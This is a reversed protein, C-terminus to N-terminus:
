ELEVIKDARIEIPIESEYDGVMPRITSFKTADLNTEFISIGCSVPKGEDIIPISAKIRLTGTEKRIMLRLPALSKDPLLLSSLHMVTLSYLSLFDKIKLFNVNESEKLSGTELLANSFEEFLDSDNFATEWIFTGALWNFAKEQRANPRKGKALKKEAKHYHSRAQQTTMGTANFIREPTAIRLNAEATKRAEELTPVEDNLQRYWAKASIQIDAARKMAVGKNRQDRHAAFDGIERVIGQGSSQQRLDLFLRNLDDVHREGRLLREV